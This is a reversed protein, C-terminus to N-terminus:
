TRKAAPLRDANEFFQYLLRGTFSGSTRHAKVPRRDSRVM